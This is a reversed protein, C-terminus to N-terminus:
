GESNAIDEGRLLFYKRRVEFNGRKEFNIAGVFKSEAVVM